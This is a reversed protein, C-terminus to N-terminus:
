CATETIQFFFLGTKELRYVNEKMESSSHGQLLPLFSGFSETQRRCGIRWYANGFKMTFHSSSIGTARRDLNHTQLRECASNTPEFGAPSMSTERNQTHHTTLYLDRRRASWEDLPTSAFTTYRDRGTEHTVAHFTFICKRSGDVHLCSSVICTCWAHSNVYLIRCLIRLVDLKKWPEGFTPGWADAYIGTTKCRDESVQM